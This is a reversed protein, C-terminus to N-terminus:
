GLQFAQKYAHVFMEEKMVDINIMEKLEIYQVARTRHQPSVDV